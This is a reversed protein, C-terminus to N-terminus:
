SFFRVKCPSSRIGRRQMFHDAGEKATQVSTTVIPGVFLGFCIGGLLALFLLLFVPKAGM